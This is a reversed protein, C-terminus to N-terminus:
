GGHRQLVGVPVKQADVVIVPLGLRGRTRRSDYEEEPAGLAVHLPEGEFCFDVDAKLHNALVCEQARHGMGLCGRELARRLVVGLFRHTDPTVVLLFHIDEEQMRSLAANASQTLEIWGPLPQMAERATEEIMAQPTM